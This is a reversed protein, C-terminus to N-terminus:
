PWQCQRNRGGPIDKGYTTPVALEQRQKKAQTDLSLAAQQLAKGSGRMQLLSRVSLAVRQETRQKAKSEFSAGLVCKNVQKNGRAWGRVLGGLFPMLNVKKGATGEPGLYLRAWNTGSSCTLQSLVYNTVHSWWNKHTHRAPSHM